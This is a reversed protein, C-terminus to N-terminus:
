RARNERELALTVRETEGSAMAERPSRGDLGPHPTELWRIADEADGFAVALEALLVQRNRKKRIRKNVDPEQAFHVTAPRSSAPQTGGIASPGPRRGAAQV